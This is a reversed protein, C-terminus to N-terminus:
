IVSARIKRHCRLEASKFFLFLRKATPTATKRKPNGEYLGSLEEDHTALNKRVVIEILTLLRVCLSLLRILGKIQDDRRVWLPEIGIPADNFLHFHREIKPAMRYLFGPRKLDQRLRQIVPQYLPSDAKQGSVIETAILHGNVGIDTSGVMM